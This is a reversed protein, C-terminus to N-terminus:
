KAALVYWISFFKLGDRDDTAGDWVAFATPTGDAQDPLEFTV